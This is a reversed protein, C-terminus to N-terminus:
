CCWCVPSRLCRRDPTSRCADLLVCTAGLGAATLAGPSRTGGPPLHRSANHVEFALPTDVIVAKFSVSSSSSCRIAGSVTPANCLLGLLGFLLLLWLATGFPASGSPGAPLYVVCGRRSEHRPAPEVMLAHPTAIDRMLRVSSSSSCRM